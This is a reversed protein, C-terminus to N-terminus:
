WFRWFKWIRRAMLWFMLREMVSASDVVLKRHSSFRYYWDWGIRGTSTSTWIFALRRCHVQSRRQHGLNWCFHKHLMYCNNTGIFFVYRRISIFHVEVRTWKQNTDSIDIPCILRPTYKWMKSHWNSIVKLPPKTWCVRSELHTHDFCELPVPAALTM